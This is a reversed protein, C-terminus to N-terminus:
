VQKDKPQIINSYKTRFIPTQTVSKFKVSFVTELYIQSPILISNGVIESINGFRNKGNQVLYKYSIIRLM